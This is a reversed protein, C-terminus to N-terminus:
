TPSLLLVIRVDGSADNFAARLQDFNASTLSLLPPQGAPVKEGGRFHWGLALLGVFVVALIYLSKKM